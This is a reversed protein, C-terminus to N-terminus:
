NQSAKAARQSIAHYILNAIGIATPVLGWAWHDKDELFWAVSVAVGVLTWILGSRLPDRKRPADIPGAFLESPLPPVELGKDIAAMRERHHLEFLEKKKRYDLWSRLMALSLGFVIAVIPISIAVLGEPDFQNMDINEM